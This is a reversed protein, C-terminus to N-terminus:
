TGETIVENPQEIIYWPTFTDTSEDYYDGPLGQEHQITPNGINKVFAENQKKTGTLDVVNLVRTKDKSLIVYRM